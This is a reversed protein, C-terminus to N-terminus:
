FPCGILSSAKITALAKVRGDVRNSAMLGTEYASVGALILPRRRLLHFLDPMGDFHTNRVVRGYARTRDLFKM